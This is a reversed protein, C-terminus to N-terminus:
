AAVAKRVLTELDELPVSPGGRSLHLFFERNGEAGTIPSPCADRVGYGMERAARAVDRLAQEHLEPDRVIGGRGVQRRGVEFQPKVLVVVDAGEALVSGLAPLILRASIFSVDV